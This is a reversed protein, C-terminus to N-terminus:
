KIKSEYKKLKEILNGTTFEKRQLNQKKKQDMFCQSSMDYNSPDKNEDNFDVEDPIYDNWPDTDGEKRFGLHLTDQFSPSLNIKKNIKPKFAHDVSNLMM